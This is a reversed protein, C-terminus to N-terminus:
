DQLTRIVKAPIGAVLTHPPVSSSVVAGAAVVAGNGISVGPLIVAGAGIWVDDGIDIPADEVIAYRPLRVPHSRTTIIVHSAIMVRSGIRLGGNARIHTFEGIAVDAGCEINQPDYIVVPMRLQLGGTRRIQRLLQEAEWEQALRVM